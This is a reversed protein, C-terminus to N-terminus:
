SRSFLSILQPATFILTGTVGIVIGIILMVKDAQNSMGLTNIKEPNNPNYQIDITQGVQYEDGRYGKAYKRSYTTGDIIYSITPVYERTIVGNRRMVREKVETVEATTSATCRNTKIKRKILRSGAILIFCLAIIWLVFVLVM